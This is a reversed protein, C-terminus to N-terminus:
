SLECLTDTPVRALGPPMSRTPVDRPTLSSGSASLIALSPKKFLQNLSPSVKFSQFGPKIWDIKLLPSLEAVFSRM